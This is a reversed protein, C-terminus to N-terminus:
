DMDKHLEALATKMDPYSCAIEIIDGDVYLYKTGDETKFFQGDQIDSM